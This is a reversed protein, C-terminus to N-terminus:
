SRVYLEYLSKRLRRQPSIGIRELAKEYKSIIDWAQNETLTSTLHEDVEIECFTDTKRTKEDTTDFVTYFVLTADDLNYIHCTKYISFNYTYGMLKLGAQIAEKPTIDVRWNVEHRIINNKAGEPKVKLTVECRDGDTGHAARRYRAFSGDPKVYYDDSGEVYVFKKLNPMNGVIKKFDILFEPDLRYKSEFETLAPILKDSM